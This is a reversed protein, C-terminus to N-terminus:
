IIGYKDILDLKKILDSDYNSSTKYDYTKNRYIDINYLIKHEKSM